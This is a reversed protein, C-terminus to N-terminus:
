DGRVEALMDVMMAEAADRVGPELLVAPPRMGGRRSIGALTEIAWSENRMAARELALRTVARAYLVAPTGNEKGPPPDNAMIRASAARALALEAPDGPRDRLIAKADEVTAARWRELQVRWLEDM